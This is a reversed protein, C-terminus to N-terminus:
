KGTDKDLAARAINADRIGERYGDHWDDGQAENAKKLAAELAEIRARCEAIDHFNDELAAELTEIRAAQQRCREEAAAARSAIKFPTMTAM